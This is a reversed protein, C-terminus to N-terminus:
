HREQKRLLDAESVVGAVQWEPPLVPLATLHHEHLLQEIQKYTPNRTESVGAPMM